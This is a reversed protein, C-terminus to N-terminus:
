AEMRDNQTIEHLNAETAVINMYGGRTMCDMLDAGIGVHGEQLDMTVRIINDNRMTQVKIVEATFRISTKQNTM